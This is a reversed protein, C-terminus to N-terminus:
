IGFDNGWLMTLTKYLLREKFKESRTQSHKRANKHAIKLYTPFSRFDDNHNNNNNFIHKVRTGYAEAHIVGTGDIGQFHLVRLYFGDTRISGGKGAGEGHRTM